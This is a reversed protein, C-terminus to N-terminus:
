QFVPIGTLNLLTLNYLNEKNQDVETFFIFSISEQSASLDLIQYGDFELFFLHYNNFALKANGVVEFEFLNM